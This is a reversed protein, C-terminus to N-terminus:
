LMELFLEKKNMLKFGPPIYDIPYLGCWKHTKRNFISVYYNKTPDKNPEIRYLWVKGYFVNLDSYYVSQIAKYYTNQTTM